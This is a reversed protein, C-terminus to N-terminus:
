LIPPLSTIADYQTAGNSTQQINPASLYFEPSFEFVEAACTNTDSQVGANSCSNYPPGKPTPPTPASTPACLYYGSQWQGEKDALESIKTCDQGPIARTNFSLRINQNACLWNDSWTQPYDPPVDWKVCYPYSAKVANLNLNGHDSRVAPDSPSSYPSSDWHTWYLRLSSSSPVCLVNDWWGDPDAPENTNVCSLGSQGSAPLCSEGGVPSGYTGCSSWILGPGAGGPSGPNPTEDRLSGFTRELNIQKAVFSGHITLQNNCNGYMSGAPMPAFGSGCTYIKKNSIYLGDLQTVGRDIYINGTAHLVFSPVNNLSWSNSYTINGTIRVDGNVFVSRANSMGSIGGQSYPGTITVTGSKPAVDPLCHSGGPDFNGGLAPSERDNSKDALVTNAFTLDTPPRAIDTQASAFGTVRVLALASLESGAGRDTGAPDSNDNWGALLGGGTCTGTSSFDGGASISGHFVKFYPDNHIKDCSDKSAPGTAGVIDHPGGPGVYGSTYAASITACYQDGAEFSGAPIGYTGSLATPPPYIGGSNSAINQQGGRAPRKYFLSNTPIYVPPNPPSVNVSTSYTDNTPNEETPSLASSAGLSANFHQYVPVTVAPCNATAPVGAVSYNLTWYQASGPATITLSVDGYDGGPGLVGAGNSNGGTGTLYPWNLNPGDLPSTNFIRGNVVVQDGAVIIGGPRNISDRVSTINCATSICTRTTSWGGPIPYWKANVGNGYFAEKTVTITITPREATYRWVKDKYAKDGNNDPAYGDIGHQSWDAGGGNVSVGTVGSVQVHARTPHDGGANTYTGENYVDLYNCQGQSPPPPPPKPVWQLTLYETGGNEANFKFPSNDNNVDESKVSGNYILRWRGQAGGPNDVHSIWFNITSEQGLAGCDIVWGDGIHQSDAGTGLVSWGNCNYGGSGNGSLHEGTDFARHDTRGNGIPWDFIRKQLDPNGPHNPDQSNLVYRTNLPANGNSGDVAHVVLSSMKGGGAGDHNGWNPSPAWPACNDALAASARGGSIFLLGATLLLTLTLLKLTLKFM